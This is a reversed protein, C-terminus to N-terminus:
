FVKPYPNRQIFVQLPLTVPFLSSKKPRIYCAAEIDIDLSQFVEVSYNLEATGLYM